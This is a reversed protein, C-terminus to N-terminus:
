FFFKLGYFLLQFIIAVRIMHDFLNYFMISFLLCGSSIDLLLLINFINGCRVNLWGTLANLTDQSWMFYFEAISWIVSYFLLQNFELIFSLFNLFGVYNVLNVALITVFLIYSLSTPLQYCADLFM